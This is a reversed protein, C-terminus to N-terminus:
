VRQRSPEQEELFQKVAAILEELEPNKRTLSGKATQKTMAIITKLNEESMKQQRCLIGLMNTVLNRTHESTFVNRAMLWAQRSSNERLEKRIVSKIIPELLASYQLDVDEQASRKLFAAITASLSLGEAAALREFHSKVRPEVWSTLKETRTKQVNLSRTRTGNSNLSEARTFETEPDPQRTGVRASTNRAKDQLVNGHRQHNSLPKPQRQFVNKASHTVDKNAM